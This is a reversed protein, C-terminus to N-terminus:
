LELCSSFHSPLWFHIQLHPFVVRPSFSSKWFREIAECPFFHSGWERFKHIDGGNVTCCQFCSIGLRLFTSVVCFCGAFIGAMSHWCFWKGDMPFISFVVFVDMSFACCSWFRPSSLFTFAHPFPCCKQAIVQGMLWFITKGFIPTEGFEFKSQWVKGM